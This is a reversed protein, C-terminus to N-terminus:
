YGWLVFVCGHEVVSYMMLLGCEIGLVIYAFM